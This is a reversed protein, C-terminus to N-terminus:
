IYRVGRALNKNKAPKEHSNVAATCIVLRAHKSDINQFLWGRDKDINRTLRIRMGERILMHCFNKGDGAWHGTRLDAPKIGFEQEIVKGNVKNANQNTVTLWLAPKGDTEVM